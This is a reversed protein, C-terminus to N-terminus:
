YENEGYWTNWDPSVIGLYIQNNPSCSQKRPYLRHAIAEGTLYLYQNTPNTLRMSYETEGAKLGITM